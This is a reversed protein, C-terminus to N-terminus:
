GVADGTNESVKLVLGDEANIFVNFYYYGLVKDVPDFIIYWSHNEPDKVNYFCVPYYRMLMDGTYDFLQEMAAYATYIATEKSIADEDPVAFVGPFTSLDKGKLKAFYDINFQVEYEWGKVQGETASSLAGEYISQYRLEDEKTYPFYSSEQGELPFITVACATSIVTTVILAALLMCLTVRRKM